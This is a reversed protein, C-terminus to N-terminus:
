WFIIAINSPPGEVNMIGCRICRARNKALHIIYNSGNAVEAFTEVDGAM